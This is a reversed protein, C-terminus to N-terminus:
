QFWTLVFINFSDDFENEIYYLIYINWQLFISLLNKGQDAEWQMQFLFWFIYVSLSGFLFCNWRGIIFIFAKGGDAEWVINWYFGSNILKFIFTRL